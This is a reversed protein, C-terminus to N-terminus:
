ENWIMSNWQQCQPCHWFPEKAQYHCSKCAFPSQEDVQKEIFQQALEAARDHSDNKQHCRILKLCVTRNGPTQTLIEEYHNVAESLDGKQEIYEAYALLIHPDHPRQELLGDYFPEMESFRGLEFLIQQIRPFTLSAYEPVKEAMRQYRKVAQAQQGQQLYSEALFWYGAPSEPALRIAQEFQRRAGKIDQMALFYKGQEVRYLAMQAPNKQGDIKQQKRGAEVWRNLRELATIEWAKALTDGRKLKLMATIAKLANEYGGIAFYDRVLSTYIRFQVNKKLKKRTLLPEHFKVASEFQGLERQIDGLRLYADIHEPNEIVTQKFYELAAERKGEM